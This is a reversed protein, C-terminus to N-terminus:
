ILKSGWMSKVDGLAYTDQNAKFTRFTDDPLRAKIVFGELHGNKSFWEKVLDPTLEHVNMDITIAGHIALVYRDINHPNGNITPRKKKTSNQDEGILEFTTGSPIDTLPIMYFADDYWIRVYTILGTTTEIQKTLLDIQKAFEKPRYYIVKVDSQMGSIFNSVSNASNVEGSVVYWESGIYMADGPQLTSPYNTQKGMITPVGDVRLLLVNTGDIKGSVFFMVGDHGCTDIFDQTFRPQLVGGGKGSPTRHFIQDIKGTVTSVYFQALM